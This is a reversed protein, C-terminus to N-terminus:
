AVGGFIFTYGIFLTPQINSFATANLVKLLFDNIFTNGKGSAM